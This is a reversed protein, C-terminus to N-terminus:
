GHAVDGGLDRRLAALTDTSWKLQMVPAGNHQKGTDMLRGGADKGKPTAEYKLNGKRDRFATQYGFQTLALNVKQASWGGLEQGIDSPTIAQAQAPAPLHTVGMLEMADVGLLNKTAQNASLAIQNADLGMSRAVSSWYQHQLRVERGMQKIQSPSLSKSVEGVEPHFSVGKTWFDHLAVASLAQYHEVKERTEKEKVKNPNLTTLWLSFKVVPISLMERSRGDAGVTRISQCLFKGAQSQLRDRQGGWSMSLAEVVPRMAIWPEGNHEFTPLFDGDFQFARIEVANATLDQVQTHKTM